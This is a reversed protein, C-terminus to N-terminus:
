HLDGVTCKGNHADVCIEYGGYESVRVQYVWMLRGSVIEPDDSYLGMPDQSDGNLAQAKKAAADRLQQSIIASNDENYLDGEPLNACLPDHGEEFWVNAKEDFFVHGKSDIRQASVSWEARQGDFIAEAPSLLVNQGSLFAKLFEEGIRAAKGASWHPKFIPAPNTPRMAFGVDWHRLNGNPWFYFEEGTQDAQFHIDVYSGGVYAECSAKEENWLSVFSGGKLGDKQCVEDLRVQVARLKELVVHGDPDVDVADGKLKKPQPPVSPAPPSGFWVEDFRRPADLRFFWVHWAVAVLSPITILLVLFTKVRRREKQETSEM